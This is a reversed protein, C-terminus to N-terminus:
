DEMDPEATEKLRFGGIQVGVRLSDLKIADFAKENELRMHSSRKAAKLLLQDYCRAQCKGAEAKM